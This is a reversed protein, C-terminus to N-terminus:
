LLLLLTSVGIDPKMRTLRDKNKLMEEHQRKSQEVLEQQAKEHLEFREKSEIVATEQVLPIELLRCARVLHDLKRAKLNAKEMLEARRKCIDGQLKEVLAEVSCQELDAEKIEPVVAASLSSASANSLLAKLREKEIKQKRM